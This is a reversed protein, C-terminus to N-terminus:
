ICPVLQDGLLSHLHDKVVHTRTDTQYAQSFLLGEEWFPVFNQPFLSVYGLLSRLM